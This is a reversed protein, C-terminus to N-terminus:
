RSLKAVFAGYKGSWAGQIPDHKPLNPSYTYGVTSICGPGLAIGMAGDDNSGGYYTSFVLSADGSRAPDIEAVFADRGGGMAPQLADRTPFAGSATNGAIYIHGARDVAIGTGQDTSAGGLFTSYRLAAAGSRTIDLKAVFVDDPYQNGCGGACVNVVNCKGNTGCTRDYANPTTPFNPSDTAGTVYVTGAGDTVIARGNGSIGGGLYTSYLLASGQPNLVAVFASGLAAYGFIKGIHPQYADATVPFDQSQTSGTVYAEGRSDVAIGYGEDINGGGLYTSYAITGSPDLKLVFGDHGHGTHQFAGPTTPVSPDLQDSDCRGTVYVSGAPDVAIAEGQNDVGVLVSDKSTPGIAKQYVVKGSPDLKTVLVDTVIQCINFESPVGYQGTIYANGASDVAIANGTAGCPAGISTSYLVHKGAADYKTVFAHSKPITGSWGVVYVDGARDTAVGMSQSDPSGGTYTASLLSPTAASARASVGLTSGAVFTAMLMSCIAVRCGAQVTRHRLQIM